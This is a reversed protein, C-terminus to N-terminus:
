GLVINRWCVPSCGSEQAGQRGNDFQRVVRGIGDSSSKGHSRSPRGTLLLDWIRKATPVFTRGDDTAFVPLFRRRSFGPASLSIERCPGCAWSETRYGVWRSARRLPKARGGDPATRQHGGARPSRGADGM